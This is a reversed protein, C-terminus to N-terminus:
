IITDLFFLIGPPSRLAALASNLHFILPHFRPSSIFDISACVQTPERDDENEPGIFDLILKHIFWPQALRPLVGMLVDVVIERIIYREPEPGYDEQPLSASLLFDVAQRLYAEQIKGDASVAMHPQMQHFLQPLTAAGAAAYSTNLKAKANRYDISHQTLLTPVDRFVLPSLDTATLRSELSRAVSTLVRTIQPLFEKDYRTIKSWWPNVYARLAIAIFDYVEANLEPSAAPSAFIPPLDTDQPLQPFLLRRALTNHKAAKSVSSTTGEQIASSFSQISRAQHRHLTSM